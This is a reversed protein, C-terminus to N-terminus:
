YHETKLVVYKIQNREVFVFLEEWDSEFERHEDKYTKKKLRCEFFAQM